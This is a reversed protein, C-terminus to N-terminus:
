LEAELDEIRQMEAEWEQQTVGTMIFEREWPMLDAAIQQLTARGTRWVDLQHDSIDIELTNVIGSFMSKRTILM